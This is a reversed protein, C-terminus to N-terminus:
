GRRRPLPWFARVRQQYRSFAAGRSRRMHAELPPIGSVHVLLWYMQIPAAFALWGWAPGGALNVGFLAMGFWFLWEFFYNPHRSLSWLGAECIRGRNDPRARFAALQADSVAEGLMAGVAVLVALLDFVGLSSSSRGAALAAAALVFAAAAQIELFVLLRRRYDAGWQRRLEAYRPDDGGARTRRGIHVGLRVAWLGVLAAVLLARPTPEGPGLPVLLGAAAVGGVGFSWLTDAWGSRGTGLVLAWAGAMVLVLTGAMLPLLLLLSMRGVGAFRCASREGGERRGRYWLM